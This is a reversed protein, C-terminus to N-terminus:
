AVAQASVNFSEHWEDILEGSTETKKLHRVTVLHLGKLLCLFARIGREVQKIGGSLDACNPYYGHTDGWAALAPARPSDAETLVYEQQAASTLLRGNFQRVPNCGHTPEHGGCPKQRNTSTLPGTPARVPRKLVFKIRFFLQYM